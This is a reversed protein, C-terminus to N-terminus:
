DGGENQQMSAVDGQSMRSDGGAGTLDAGDQDLAAEDEGEGDQKLRWFTNKKNTSSDIKTVKKFVKSKHHLAGRLSQKWPNNEGISEDTYYSHKQQISHIIDQVTLEKDPDLVQIILQEYTLKPKDLTPRGRPLLFYLPTGDAIQICAQSTLKCPTGQRGDPSGNYTVGNVKVANKCISKIEFCQQENNWYIMAHRKSIKMRNGIHFNADFMATSANPAPSRGLIVEIRTPTNTDDLEKVFEDTIYFPQIVDGKTALKAYALPEKSAGVFAM